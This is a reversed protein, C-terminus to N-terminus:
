LALTDQDPLRAPGHRRQKDTVAALVPSDRQLYRIPQPGGTEGGQKHVEVRGLADRGATIPLALQVRLQALGVRHHEQGAGGRHSGRPTKGLDGQGAGQAPRDERQTQVGTDQQRQQVVHLPDIKGVTLRSESAQLCAQM